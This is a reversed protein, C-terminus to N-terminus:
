ADSKSCIFRDRVYHNWIHAFLSSWPERWCRLPDKGEHLLCINCSTCKAITTRGRKVQYVLDQERIYPRSMAVFDTDSNLIFGEMLNITRLGGGLIVPIRLSKKMARAHSLYYAEEVPRSFIRHYLHDRLAKRRDVSVYQRCSSTNYSGQMVGGSVEIGDLGLEALRGARAVSEEKKLGGEIADEIGLKMIVPFDPGVAKRVARYIEEALRGRREADGGWRDNRQNSFPSNFESILYGHAAHVQIGDFGSEVARTAAASFAEIVELIQAETAEEPIARNIPNAIPSPAITKMGIELQSQSGAHSLQAFIIGGNRHVTHTLRSLGTVLRDDHIGIQRRGYKGRPHVYMHGTNILGIEGKALREYLGLLEHSIEGEEKAMTEYTASRVFKNKLILNGIRGKQFLVNKSNM